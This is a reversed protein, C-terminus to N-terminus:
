EFSLELDGFDLDMDTEFDFTLGDGFLDPMQLSSRNETENVAGSVAPLATPASVEDEVSGLLDNTEPASVEEQLDNTEEAATRPPTTGPIIFPTEPDGLLNISYYCYRMDKGGKDNVTSIFREKSLQNILGINTVPGGSQNWRTANFMEEWFAVDFRQSPSKNINNPNILGYRTNGIFAFAGAPGAVFHELVCDHPLYIGDPDRNDFSAAYGAQSYGFFYKENKLADANNYGMKMVYAVIDCFNASGIHNIAHVMDDNIIEELASRPWNNQDLDCGSGFYDRDYLTRINFIPPFIPKIRDMYDGGWKDCEAGGSGSGGCGSGGSSSGGCDSGSCDLTESTQNEIDSSNTLQSIMPELYEGVMWIGTLYPEDSCTKEYAITKGVFSSVEEYNDVPARGVYVEAALDVMNGGEGDNPEGYIGDGDSDYSGDLCAYYLDSLLDPPRCPGPCSSPDPEYAWAWLGRAPVIADWTEGGIRNGDGDGGLLVYRVGNKDHADRIFNRIAEQDDRPYTYKYAEQIEEVTVIAAPVGKKTKHAALAQFNNPGPAEKLYENTIIVYSYNGKLIPSIGTLALDSTYTTVKEPNDVMMEVEARDEPLGRVAGLDLTQAPATAVEIDFAGFSYADGTKPIYKIPYFNVYLIQYGHKTQIGQVSYAEEPYPSESQYIAEDLFASEPSTWNDEPHCSTCNGTFGIPISEQGPGISVKGLYRENGAVVKVDQVEEGCPILIRATGFPLVPEGPVAMEELGPVTVSDYTEESGNPGALTTAGRDIVPEDLLYQLTIKNTSNSSEQARASSSVACSLTLSLILTLSVLVFKKM